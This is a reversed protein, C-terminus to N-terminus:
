NQELSHSISRRALIASMFIVPHFAAYINLASFEKKDYHFQHDQAPIPSLSLLFGIQPLRIVRSFRVILHAKKVKTGEVENM